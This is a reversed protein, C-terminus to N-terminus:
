DKNRRKNAARRAAILLIVLALLLVGVMPVTWQIYQRWEYFPISGPPRAEGADPHKSDIWAIPGDDGIIGLNGRHLAYHQEHKQNPSGLTQWLVGDIGAARILEVTTLNQLGSINIWPLPQGGIRLGSNDTLQVVSVTDKLPVEMSVFAHEPSYAETNPVRVLQTRSIPLGSALAISIINQLSLPAAELYREPIILAPSNALSPLVGAFTDDPSSIGLKIYSSPLVDVPYSQAEESCKNTVPQRQFRVVVNNNIGLAYGPVRAKIREPEGDAKLRQAALLINNWLVSVIPSNGSAGPAAAVDMVIEQPMQGYKVVATLPFNVSWTGNTKVDFSASSRALSDLNIIGQAILEPPAAQYATVQSTTLINRWYSDFIGAAHTGVDSAIVIVPQRGMSAIRVQGIQVPQNVITAREARWKDFDAVADQDSEFQARLAALSAHIADYLTNDMIAVDSRVAEANLFILAGIEALSTLKFVSKGKLTSFAPIKLLASPIQLDDIIVEDGIAPFPRFYVHKNAHELALGFRWASDFSEEAMKQGSVLFSVEKPLLEFLQTLKSINGANFRYTLKSETLINLSNLDNLNTGCQSVDSASQWKIGLRVFGNKHFEPSVFLKQTLAGGRDTYKQSFQPTGDVSIFLGVPDSDGKLYTAELTVSANQLTLEKPVPFYFERSADLGNLVVVEKLGLDALKIQRVIWTDQTQQTIADNLASAHALHPSQFLTVVLVCSFIFKLYTLAYNNCGINACLSPNLFPM